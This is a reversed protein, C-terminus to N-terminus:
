GEQNAEVNQVDKKFQYQWKLQDLSIRRGEQDMVIFGGDRMDIRIDVYKCDWNRSWSWNVCGPKLTNGDEEFPEENSLQTITDTWEKFKDRDNWMNAKVLEDHNPDLPRCNVGPVQPEPERVSADPNYKWTHYKTPESIPIQQKLSKREAKAARRRDARTEKM